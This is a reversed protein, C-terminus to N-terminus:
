EPLHLTGRDRHERLEAELRAVVARARDEDRGLLNGLRLILARCFREDDSAGAYSARFHLWSFAPAATSIDRVRAAGELLSMRGNAVADAVEDGQWMRNMVEDTRADIEQQRRLLQPTTWRAIQSALYESQIERSMRDWLHLASLLAAVFMLGVTPQSFRPM